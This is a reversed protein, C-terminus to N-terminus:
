PQRERDFSTARRLVWEAAQRVPAERSRAAETLISVTTPSSITGLAQLAAVRVQPARAKLHRRRWLADLVRIAAEGGLAALAFTFAEVEEEPCSDFSGSLVRAELAAQQELGAM